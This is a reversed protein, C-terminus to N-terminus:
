FLVACVKPSIANWCKSFRLIANHESDVPLLTAGKETVRQLFLDGACVLCEKNALGIHIGQDVAALTPELGTAGIIAAMCFDATRSAAEILADSGIGIETKTGKLASKLAEANKSDALAVFEAGFEIAQAALKQANNNATLAVVQIEGRDARRVLDLTSEGISGTSGLITVRKTM